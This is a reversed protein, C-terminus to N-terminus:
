LRYKLVASIPVVKRWETFEYDETLRTSDFFFVLVGFSWMDASCDWKM